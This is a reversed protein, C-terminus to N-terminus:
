RAGARGPRARVEASVGALGWSTEQSGATGAQGRRKGAASAECVPVHRGQVGEQEEPQEERRPPLPRRLSPPRGRRLTRQLFYLSLLPEAEVLHPTPSLPRHADASRASPHAAPLRPPEQDTHGQLGSGRHEEWVRNQLGYKQIGTWRQGKVGKGGLGARAARGKDGELASGVTRGLSLWGAWGWARAGRHGRSVARRLGLVARLAAWLAPTPAPAECLGGGKGVQLQQSALAAVRQPKPQARPEASPASSPSCCLTIDLVCAWHPMPTDVTSHATYAM